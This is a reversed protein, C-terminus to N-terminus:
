KVQEQCHECEEMIYECTDQHARIKDKPMKVGCDRFAVCEVLKFECSQLHRAYEDYATVDRCQDNLCQIKLESLSNRIIKHCKQKVEIDESCKLPCCTARELSKLLCIQCFATECRSCEKPNRLIGLCIPCCLEKRVRDQNQVLEVGIIDEIM